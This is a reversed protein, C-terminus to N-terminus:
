SLPVEVSLLVVLCFILFIFCAKFFNRDWQVFFILSLFFLFLAAPCRGEWFANQPTVNVSQQARTTKLHVALCAARGVVLQGLFRCSEVDSRLKARVYWVAFSGDMKRWLVFTILYLVGVSRILETDRHEM